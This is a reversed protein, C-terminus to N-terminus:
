LCSSIHFNSIKFLNTGSNYFPFGCFSSYIMPQLQYKESKNAFVTFAVFLKLSFFKPLELAKFQFFLYFVYAATWTSEFHQLFTIISTEFALFHGFYTKSQRLNLGLSLM